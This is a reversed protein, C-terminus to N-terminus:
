LAALMDVRTADPVSVSFNVSILGHGAIHRARLDVVAHLYPVFLTRYEYLTFKCEDDRRLDRNVIQWEIFLMKTDRNWFCFM